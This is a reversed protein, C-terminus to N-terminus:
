AVKAYDIVSIDQLVAKAATVLKELKASVDDTVTVEGCVQCELCPVHKVVIICDEYEVTVTTTTELKDFRYCANCM